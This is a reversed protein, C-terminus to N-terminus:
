SVFNSPLEIDFIFEKEPQLCGDAQMGSVRLRVGEKTLASNEVYAVAEIRPAM